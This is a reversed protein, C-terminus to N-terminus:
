AILVRVTQSHIDIISEWNTGGDGKRGTDVHGNEIQMEIGVSCVPDDTGKKKRSEM